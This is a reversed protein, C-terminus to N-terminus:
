FVLLHDKEDYLEVSIGAARVVELMQKIRMLAANGGLIFPFSYGDNRPVAKKDTRAVKVGIIDTIDLSNARLPDHPFNPVFGREFVLFARDEGGPVKSLMEIDDYEIIEEESTGHDLLAVANEKLLNPILLLDEFVGSPGKVPLKEVFMAVKTGSLHRRQIGSILLKTQLIGTGYDKKGWYFVYDRGFGGESGIVVRLPYKLQGPINNLPSNRWSDMITTSPFSSGDTVPVEYIVGAPPVIAPGWDPVVTATNSDFDGFLTTVGLYIRADVNLPDSVGSLDLKAVAAGDQEDNIVADRSPEYVYPGPWKGSPTVGPIWGADILHDDIDPQIYNTGYYQVVSLGVGHTQGTVRSLTLKSSGAANVLLLYTKETYISTSFIPAAVLTIEGDVAISSIQVTGLFASESVVQLRDTVTLDIDLFNRDPRLVTTTGAVLETVLQRQQFTTGTVFVKQAPTGLSSPNIEWVGVPDEVNCQAIFFDDVPNVPQTLIGVNAQYWLIETGVSWSRGAPIASTLVFKRSIPNFSSAEVILSGGRTKFKKEEPGIIIKRPYVLTDIGLTFFDDIFIESDGSSLPRRIGSTLFPNPHIYSNGPLRNIRKQLCKIKVKVRRAQTELIEWCGGSIKIMEGQLHSLSLFDTLRVRNLFPSRTVLRVDEQNSAGPDNPDLIDAGPSYVTAEAYLPMREVSIIFPEKEPYLYAASQQGIIKVGPSFTFGDPISYLDTFYLRSNVTDLFKYTAEIVTGTKPHTATILEGVTFVGVLTAPDYEVYDGFPTISLFPSGISKNESLQYYLDEYPGLLIELIQFFSNGIAKYDAMLVQACARFVDENSFGLAPRSVGYNGIVGDLFSGTSWRLLLMRRALERASRVQENFLPSPINSLDIM